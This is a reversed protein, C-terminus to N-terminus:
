STQEKSRRFAAIFDTGAKTLKSEKSITAAHGMQRMKEPDFELKEVDITEALNKAVLIDDDELVVSYIYAAIFRAMKEVNAM